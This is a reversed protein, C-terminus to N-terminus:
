FVFSNLVFQEANNTKYRTYEDFLKLSMNHCTIIDSQILKYDECCLYFSNKSIEKHGKYDCDLFYHWFQLFSANIKKMYYGICLDCANIFDKNNSNINCFEKWKEYMTELLPYIEILINKNLIFGAGGLHFRIKEGNITRSCNHGGIYLKNEVTLCDIKDNLFEILKDVNVYTDTGCCYIYEVSPHNEYIFKMGLNQKHSASEYDNGVDKLFVYSEIDDNPNLFNVDDEGLFFYCLVGKTKACKGWTEQIKLIQKKYKEISICGFVCLAINSPSTLTKM